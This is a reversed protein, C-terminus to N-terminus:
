EKVSIKKLGIWQIAYARDLIWMFVVQTVLRYPSTGSRTHSLSGGATYFAAFPGKRYCFPANYQDSAGAFAQQLLTPLIAFYRSNKQLNIPINETNLKNKEETDTREIQWNETKKKEQKKKSQPGACVNKSYLSLLRCFTSFHQLPTAPLYLPSLFNLVNM